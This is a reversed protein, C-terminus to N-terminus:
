LLHWTRALGEWMYFERIVYKTFCSKGFLEQMRGQGEGGGGWRGVQVTTLNTYKYALIILFNAEVDVLGLFIYKWWNKRLISCFDKRVAVPVGYIFGLLIYNLFAQATPVEISYRNFLLQSSVGTGCLLASLFQGLVLAAFLRAYSCCFNLM